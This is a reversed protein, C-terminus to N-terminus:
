DRFGANVGTKKTRLLQQILIRDTSARFIPRVSLKAPDNGDAPYVSDRTDGKKSFLV